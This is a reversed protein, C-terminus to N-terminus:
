ANSPVYVFSNKKKKKKKKKKFILAIFAIVKSIKLQERNSCIYFCFYSFFFGPLAVIVFRM